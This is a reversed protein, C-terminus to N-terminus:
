ILAQEANASVFHADYPARQQPETCLGSASATPIPSPLHLSPLPPLLLPPSPSLCPPFPHPSFILSVCVGVFCVCVPISTYVCTCRVHTHLYQTHIYIHTCKHIYIHIYTHMYM